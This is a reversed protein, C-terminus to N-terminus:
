SPLGHSHLRYNFFLRPLSIKDNEHRQAHVRVTQLMSSFAYTGGLRTRLWQQDATCQNPTCARSSHLPSDRTGCKHDATEEARMRTGLQPRIPISGSMYSKLSQQLPQTSLFVVMCRSFPPSESLPELKRTSYAYM